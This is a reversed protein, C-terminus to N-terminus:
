KWLQVGGVYVVKRPNRDFVRLRATKGRQASVDWLVPYFDLDSPISSRQVVAGDVLLEVGVRDSTKGGGVMLSLRSGSVEFPPSSSEGQPSSNPGKSSARSPAGSSLVYGPVASRLTLEKGPLAHLELNGSWDKLDSPELGITTPQAVDIAAGDSAQSRFYDAQGSKRRSTYYAVLRARTSDSPSAYYERLLLVELGFDAINLSPRLRLLPKTTKQRAPPHIENAWVYALYAQVEDTDELEIARAILRDSLSRRREFADGFPLEILTAVEAQSDKLFEDAPVPLADPYRSLSRKPAMVKSGAKLTPLALYSWADRIPKKQANSKSFALRFVYSNENPAPLEVDFDFRLPEGASLQRAIEPLGRDLTFVHKPSKQDVAVGLQGGNVASDALLAVSLRVKAGKTLEVPGDANPRATVEAGLLQVGPTLPKWNTTAFPPFFDVLESRHLEVYSGRSGHPLHRPSLHLYVLNHELTDKLNPWFNRPLYIWSPGNGQEHLLHAFLPFNSRLADRANRLRPVTADCLGLFDIPYFQADSLWSPGGFDHTLLSISGLRANKSLTRLKEGDAIRDCFHCFNAQKLKRLRPMQYDRWAWGCATTTVLLCTCTIWHKITRSRTHLRAFVDLALLREFLVATSRAFNHAGMTALLLVAPAFFSIFRAHPMWDGGSYLVFLCGFLAIWVLLIKARWHGWLGFLVLPLAYQLHSDRMGNRLYQYGRALSKSQPKAFYTNPVFEGFVSYHLIHYGVLPVAFWLIARRLQARLAPRWWAVVSKLTLMPLAYAPGEPRTICLMFALVASLPFRQPDDHELVDCYVMGILLSSLLANELGAVTWVAVELMLVMGLGWFTALLAGAPQQPRTRLIVGTGAGLTLLLGVVGLVKSVLPLPAGFWCFPALLFVWLANSYGEVWPGGIAAVPGDGQAIHKAYAFSIGSDDITFHWAATLAGVATSLVLTGGLLWPLAVGLPVGTLRRMAAFYLTAPSRLVPSIRAFLQRHLSSPEQHV